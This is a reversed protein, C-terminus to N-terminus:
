PRHLASPTHSPLALAELSARPNSGDGGQVYCGPGRRSAQAVDSKSPQAGGTPSSRSRLRAASATSPRVMPGAYEGPSTLIADPLPTDSSWRPLLSFSHVMKTNAFPGGFPRAPEAAPPPPANLLASQISPHISGANLMMEKEFAEDRPRRLKHQLFQYPFTSGQMHQLYAHSRGSLEDALETFDDTSTGFAYQEAAELKHPHRRTHELNHAGSVEAVSLKYFASAPMPTRFEEEQVWSEFGHRDFRTAQETSLTQPTRLAPGPSQPPHEPTWAVLRKRTSFTAKQKGFWAMGQHKRLHPASAQRQPTHASRLSPTSVSAALHNEVLEPQMAPISISQDSRDEESPRPNVRVQWENSDIRLSTQM